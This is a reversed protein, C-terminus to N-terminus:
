KGVAQLHVVEEHENIGCKREISLIEELPHLEEIALNLPDM